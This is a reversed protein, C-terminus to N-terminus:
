GAREALLFQNSTEFGAKALVLDLGSAVAVVPWSRLNLFEGFRDSRRVSDLGLANRLSVVTFGSPLFGSAVARLGAREAARELTARTFLHFHRPIHYAGWHRRGFIRFDFGGLNPTEILVCGGPALKAALRRLVGVPDRVHEIIQCLIALDQSADALSGLDEEINARVLRVGRSALEAVRQPDPQLDLGTLEAVGPLAQGLRALREADGCGLDAIRQSRRGRLLGAIRAVDRGLKWEYLRGSLRVPSDPNRTYYTPPYIQPLEEPAPLPDLYGHGCSRCRLFAFSRGPLTHYESDAGRALLTADSGLCLPCAPAV